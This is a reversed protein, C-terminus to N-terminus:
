WEISEDIVDKGNVKVGFDISGNRIEILECTTVAAEEEIDIELSTVKSDDICQIAYYCTLLLKQKTKSLEKFKIPQENTTEVPKNILTVHYHDETDGIQLILDGKNTNITIRKCASIDGELIESKFFKELDRFLISNLKNM